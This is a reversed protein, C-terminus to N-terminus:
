LGLVNFFWASSETTEDQIRASDRTFVLRRLHAVPLSSLYVSVVLGFWIEMTSPSVIRLIESEGPSVTETSDSITFTTEKLVVSNNSIVRDCIRDEPYLYWLCHTLNKLTYSSLVPTHNIYENTVSSSVIKLEVM